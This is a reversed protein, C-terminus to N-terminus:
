PIHIRVRTSNNRRSKEELLKGPDVRCELWYDGPPIGAVEIYQEQLGAWYVDGWGVSIGMEGTSADVKPCRKFRRAEANNWLKAVDMLCFSQKKPKGVYTGTQMSKLRYQLFASYHWHNHDPNTDKEARGAPRRRWRSTPKALDEILQEVKAKTASYKTIQLLLRGDGVNAICNSFTLHRHGRHGPGERDLDTPKSIIDTDKMFGRQDPAVGHFELVAHPGSLPKLDPLKEAM